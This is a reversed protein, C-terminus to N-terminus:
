LKLTALRTSLRLHSRLSILSRVRQYNVPITPKTAEEWSILDKLKTAETKLYLLKRLRLSSDGM